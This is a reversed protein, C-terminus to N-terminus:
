SLRPSHFELQPDTPACAGCAVYRFLLRLLLSQLLWKGRWRELVDILGLYAIGGDQLRYHRTHGHEDAAEAEAAAQAEEAKAEEAKAETRIGLLLSYDM